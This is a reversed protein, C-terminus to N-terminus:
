CWRAADGRHRVLHDDLPLYALPPLPRYFEIPPDFIGRAIRSMGMAIGVPVATICALFFAGFVRAFSWGFHEM